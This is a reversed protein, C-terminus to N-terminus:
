TVPTRCRNHVNVKIPFICVFINGSTCLIESIGIFVPLHNGRPFPVLHSSILFSLSKAINNVVESNKVMHM